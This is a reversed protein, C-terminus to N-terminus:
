DVYLVGNVVDFEDRETESAEPPVVVEGDVIYVYQHVGPEISLSVTWVGRSLRMPVPEWATFTGVISVEEAELELVFSLEGSEYAHDDISRRRGLISTVGAMSRHGTFQASSFRQQLTADLFLASNAHVWYQVRLQGRVAQANGPPMYLRYIPEGEDTVSLFVFPEITVRYHPAYTVGVQVSAQLPLKVPCIPVQLRTAVKASLRTDIYGDLGSWLLPGWCRLKGELPDSGGLTFLEASAWPQISSTRTRWQVGASNELWADVISARLGLVAGINGPPRAVAYLNHVDQAPISRWVHLGASYAIAAEVTPIQRSGGVSNFFRGFPLTEGNVADVGASAASM